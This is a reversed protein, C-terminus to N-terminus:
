VKQLLNRNHRLACRCYLGGLDSHSKEMALKNKSEFAQGKFNYKNSTPTKKQLCKKLEYNRPAAARLAHNVVSGVHSVTSANM